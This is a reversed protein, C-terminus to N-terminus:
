SGGSVVPAVPAPAAPLPAAAPPQPGASAGATGTAAQSSSRSRMAAGTARSGGTARGVASRPAARAHYAHATLASLASAVAVALGIAWRNLRAALRLGDDRAQVAESPSPDARPRSTSSDPRM